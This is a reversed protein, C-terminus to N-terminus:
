RIPKYQGSAILETGMKLFSKIVHEDVFELVDMGGLEGDELDHRPASLIQRRETILSLVHVANPTGSWLLHHAKWGKDGVRGDDPEFAVASRDLGDKVGCILDKSFMWGTRSEVPLKTSMSHTAGLRVEDWAQGCGMEFM